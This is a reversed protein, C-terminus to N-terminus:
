SEIQNQNDFGTEYKGFNDVCLYGIVNCGTIELTDLEFNLMIFSYFATIIGAEKKEKKILTM